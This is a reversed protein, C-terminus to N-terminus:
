EFPEALFIGPLNRYREDYDLGYGVIFGDDMTIGIYDAELSVERRARKDILACVKLSAPQREQLRHLLSQLTLGSDIIDEVVLVHKGRISVELDKRLEIIGSSQTESGYSALRMFDITLPGQLQRCLDAIFLFSGKLIGVLIIERDQYDRNIEQGLRVVQREIEEASFLTKLKLEPM